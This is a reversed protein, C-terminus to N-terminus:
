IKGLLKLALNKLNVKNKTFPPYFFRLPNFFRGQVSVARQHSFTEFGSKGHNFGHGSHHDGGFPLNFNCYNLLCNNISVGGSRISDLINQIWKKNKSFIYLTLPRKMSQLPLLADQINEYSIIPLVPGFNEEQMSAHDWDSNLLLVPKIKRLLPDRQIPETLVAGQDLSEQIINLLRLYHREHILGSYDANSILDNGYFSQIASNWESIFDQKMHEPILIFDPSVCTQGANLCKAYAIDKVVANLDVGADIIVPTKGGLELTLPTLHDAAIKSIKIATNASGTFFIHNFPLHVLEEAVEANGNIVVVEDGSFTQQILEEIVRSTQRSFESPKLIIRNGASWAAILPILSLNVPYNWPSIILVVGKPEYRIYHRTGTLETPTAVKKPKVWHHLEKKAKRLEVLCTLIESTDSEFEPKNFDEHLAFAIKSKFRILNEELKALRQLREQISIVPTQRFASRLNEFQKFIQEKIEPETSIFTM